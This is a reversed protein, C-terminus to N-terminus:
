WDGGIWVFSGTFGTSKSFLYFTELSVGQVTNEIVAIETLMDEIRLKFERSPM